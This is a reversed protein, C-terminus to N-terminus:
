MHKLYTVNSKLFVTRNSSYFLVRRLSCGQCGFFYIRILNTNSKKFIENLKSYLKVSVGSQIFICRFIKLDIMMNLFGHAISSYSVDHTRPLSYTHSYVAFMPMVRHRPPLTVPTNPYILVLQNDLKM